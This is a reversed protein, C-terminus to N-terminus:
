TKLLSRRKKINILPAYMEIFVKAIEPDFQTGANLEIEKIAKEISYAEKYSRKTVMADFADAISIIRAPLLIETAKLRNPYGTGDWREHHQFVYQAIDSYEKKSSLIKYGFESHKKMEDWEKDTLKGEKNTIRPDVFVKGIDHFYGAISIRKVEYEPLNLARAIQESIKAVNVSHSKETNNLNFFKNIISHLSAHRLSFFEKQKYIKIVTFKM